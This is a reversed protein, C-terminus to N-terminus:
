GVVEAVELVALLMVDLRAALDPSIKEAWYTTHVTVGAGNKIFITM